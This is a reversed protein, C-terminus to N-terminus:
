APILYIIKNATVNGEKSPLLPCFPAYIPHSTPLIHLFPLVPLSASSIHSAQTRLPSVGPCHHILRDAEQKRAPFLQMCFAM